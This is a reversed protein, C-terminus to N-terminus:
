SFLDGDVVTAGSLLLSGNLSIPIGGTGDVSALSGPETLIGRVYCMFTSQASSNTDTPLPPLVGENNGYTVVPTETYINIDVVWGRAGPSVNVEDEVAPPGGAGPPPVVAGNGLSPTSNGVLNSPLTVTGDSFGIWLGSTVLLCEDKTVGWSTADM